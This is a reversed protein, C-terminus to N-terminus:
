RLLMRTIVEANRAYHLVGVSVFGLVVTVGVATVASWVLRRVRARRTVIRPITGLVPVHTFARLEDVSKFSRDLRDLLLVVGAGMVLAAVLALGMLIRRNPATPDEAPVAPDIVQFEHTGGTQARGGALAEQYRTTLANYNTRLQALDSTLREFQASRVPAREIIADYKDMDAQLARNSAQLNEIRTTLDAVQGRLTALRSTDPGTSGASGKAAVQRELNAIESRKSRVEFSPEKFRGLLAELERKAQELRIAPDTVDAAASTPTALAAVETQLGDRRDLLRSIESTNASMQTTLQSYRTSISTMQAPLAGANQTTFQTLRQEQAELSRQAADVERRLADAMRNQQESRMAGSRQVYFDSLRNATAAVKVPDDGTYSVRFSVTTVRGDGRSGRIPEVNVDRQMMALVSDFQGSQRLEPYLNLEEAMALTNQRTLVEQRIAQLRASVELSESEGTQNLPAPAQDVILTASSRYLNPLGVAVPLLLALVLASAILGAPWRRRIAGLHKHLVSESSNPM